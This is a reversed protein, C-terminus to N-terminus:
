IQSGEILKRLILSKQETELWEENSDSDPMIGSGIYMCWSTDDFNVCRINVYAEIGAPDDSLAVYAGYCRRPHHEIEVIKELASAMPYGALAPTPNLAVLIEDAACSETKGTIITQLHQINGTTITETEGVVPKLGVDYLRDVIYNRVIAQEAINKGSWPRGDESHPRTGALAMTKFTGDAISLLLEPSAGLWFGHRPTYYMYRFAEPHLTFYADAVAIWDVSVGCQTIVRSIVTKGGHDKLFDILDDLGSIYEDYATTQHWPSFPMVYDQCKGDMSITADADAREYITYIESLGTGWSSVLFRRQWRHPFAEGPDSFFVLEDSWPRMYIVFPLKHKLAVKAAEIVKDSLLM